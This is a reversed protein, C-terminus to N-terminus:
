FNLKQCSIDVVREGEKYVSVGEMERKKYVSIGEM